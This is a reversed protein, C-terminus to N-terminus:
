NREEFRKAIWEYHEDQLPAPYDQNRVRSMWQRKGCDSFGNLFKMLEEKAKEETLHVSDEDQDHYKFEIRM